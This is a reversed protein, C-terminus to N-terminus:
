SVPCEAEPKARQIKVKFFKRRGKRIEGIAEVVAVDKLAKKLARFMPAMVTATMFDAGTERLVKEFFISAVEFFARGNLKTIYGENGVMKLTFSASYNDEHDTYFRVDFETAEIECRPEM